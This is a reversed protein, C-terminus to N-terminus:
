KELPRYMYFHKGISKRYQVKLYAPRDGKYYLLGDEGLGCGCSQSIRPFEFERVLDHVRTEPNNLHRIWVDVIGRIERQAERKLRFYARKRKEAEKRQVSDMYNKTATLAKWNLCGTLIRLFDIKPSASIEETLKAKVIRYEMYEQLERQSKQMRAKVRWLDEALARDDDEASALKLSIWQKQVWGCTLRARCKMKQLCVGQRLKKENVIMHKMREVLEAVKEVQDFSIKCNKEMHVFKDRNEPEILHYKDWKRM